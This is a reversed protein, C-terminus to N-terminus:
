NPLNPELQSEVEKVIFDHFDSSGKSIHENQTMLKIRGIRWHQSNSIKLSSTIISLDLSIKPESLRTSFFQRKSVHSVKLKQFTSLKNMLEQSCNKFEVFTDEIMLSRVTVLIEFTLYPLFYYVKMEEFKPVFITLLKLFPWAM